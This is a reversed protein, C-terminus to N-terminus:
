DGGTGGAPRNLPATNAPVPAPEVTIGPGSPGPAKAPAAPPPLQEVPAPTPPPPPPEPHAAADEVATVQQGPTIASSINLAVRDGPNVGSALEVVAGDDKAIAVPRFQVKGDPPVVAVELGDPRYLIAAAPVQLLGHQDLEFRVQVYMGPVLTLDPNPVDVEVRETMTQPDISMASRAVRGDFTRGPYQDSTVHARLGVTMDAAAKQPVPVFVRIVNSQAMDYLPTTSASSGLTVLDGIDIHRGTIIGDYPAQVRRFGELAQYRGVDAQDLRAQATAEALHAKAATYQAQKEEREQESVVGKPSDRWRDYTLKAISQDSRAVDVQADSAAAKARAAALQQDLEPTDITALVQGQKVHDGIDAAWTGIYGDVRAYLPGQIWGATRGPLTLPYHGPTAGVPVVDVVDRADAADAAGRDAEGRAHHRAAFAVAFAGGLVVAMGAAAFALVRGTRPPVDTSIREDGAAHAPHADAAHTEAAHTEAPHRGNGDTPTPTRNM